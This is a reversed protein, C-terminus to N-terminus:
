ENRAAAAQPTPIPILKPRPPVTGLVAGHRERLQAFNLRLFAVLHPEPRKALYARALDAMHRDYHRKSGSHLHCRGDHRRLDGNCEPHIHHLEHFLTVLKDDFDQDLYRPLSFTMVYLFEHDGHFYRQVQYTVGHRQRVIHGGPFRLPTVRAQLGQLRASRAQSVGILLREPRLHTFEPCREAVDGILRRMHAGFDFAQGPPGTDHWPQGTFPAIHRQGRPCRLVRVPLPTPEHWRIVLAYPRPDHSYQAAL